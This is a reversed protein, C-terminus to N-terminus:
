RGGPRVTVWWRHATETDTGYYFLTYDPARNALRMCIPGPRELGSGEVCLTDAGRVWWRGRVPGYDVLDVSRALTEETRWGGRLTGDPDLGWIDERPAFGPRGARKVEAGSLFAELPGPPPAGASGGPPQTQATTGAPALTLALAVAVGAALARASLHVPGM